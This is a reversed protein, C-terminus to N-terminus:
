ALSVFSFLRSMDVYRRGNRELYRTSTSRIRGLDTRNLDVM